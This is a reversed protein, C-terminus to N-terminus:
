SSQQLVVSAGAGEGTQGGRQGGGAARRGGERAGSQAAADAADEGPQGPPAREGSLTEWRAEAAGGCSRRSGSVARGARRSRMHVTECGAGNYM